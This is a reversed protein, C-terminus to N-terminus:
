AERLADVLVRMLDTTTVIGILRRDPGTVLLSGIKHEFMQQAAALLSTEPPISLPDRVMVKIVPITEFMRNYEEPTLNSFMSPSARQVDRDSLVGVARGDRVVPLHRVGGSRMLLAADLLTADEELTTLETKMVEGVTKPLPM